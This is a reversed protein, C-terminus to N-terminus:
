GSKSKLAITPISPADAISNTVEAVSEEGGRKANREDGGNDRCHSLWRLDRQGVYVDLNKKNSNCRDGGFRM